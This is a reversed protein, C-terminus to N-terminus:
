STRRIGAKGRRLRSILTSKEKWTKYWWWSLISIATIPVTTAIWLWWLGTVQFSNMGPKSEFINASLVSAMFTGPLFVMTLGAIANMSTSDRKMDSAIEINNLADQQANFHFVLSMTSEKRGKYNEFWMLQKEMCSIVYHIIDLTRQRTRSETSVNLKEAFDRICRATFLFIKANALHSDNNQSMIQLNKISEALKSRDASGISALHDDVTNVISWQFRRFRHFHWKSAEFNLHCIMVHIDFPSDLLITSMHHKAKYRTTTDLLSRLTGIVTDGPKHSVIYVTLDRQVDHKSYVSVPAGQVQLNWRPHQCFLDCAVVRDGEQDLRSQPAWYDPRGLMNPLFSPNLGLSSFLRDVSSQTMPIIYKFSSEVKGLSPTLPVFFAITMRTATSQTNPTHTSFATANKWRNSANQILIELAPEDLRLWKAQSDVVSFCEIDTTDSFNGKNGIHSHYLVGSFLEQVSDVTSLPYKDLDVNYNYDLENPDLDTLEAHRQVHQRDRSIPRLPVETSNFAAELKSYELDGQTDLVAHNSEM